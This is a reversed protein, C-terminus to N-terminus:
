QRNHDSVSLFKLVKKTKWGATDALYGCGSKLHWEHFARPKDAYREMIAMATGGHAVIIRDPADSSASPDAPLESIWQEMLDDFAQCVRRCFGDKSEGGPCFGLCMGDVWARYEADNVMEAASRGEFVGFDMEALEPIVIQKASPFLCAATERARILPSVYVTKPAYGAKQLKEKGTDSLPIDSRGQYKGHAMWETEGHRIIEIIM